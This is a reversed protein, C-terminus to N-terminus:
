YKILFCSVFRFLVGFKFVSFVLSAPLYVCKLFDRVFVCLINKWFFVLMLLFCVLFCVCFGVSIVAAPLIDFFDYCAWNTNRHLQRELCYASDQLATTTQSRTGIWRSLLVRRLIFSSTEEYRVLGGGGGGVVRRNMSPVKGGRFHCFGTRCSPWFQFGKAEFQIREVRFFVSGPGFSCSTDVEFIGTRFLISKSLNSVVEIRIVGGKKKKKKKKGFLCFDTCFVEFNRCLPVEEVKM